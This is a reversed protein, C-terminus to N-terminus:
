HAHRKGSHDCAEPVFDASEAAILTPAYARLASVFAAYDARDSPIYLEHREGLLADQAILRLACCVGNETVTGRVLCGSEIQPLAFFIMTRGCTLELMADEGDRPPLFRLTDEGTLIYRNM